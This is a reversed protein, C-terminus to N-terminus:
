AAIGPSFGLLAVRGSGQLPTAEESYLVQKGDIEVIMRSGIRQIAVEYWQNAVLPAATQVDFRIGARLLMHM